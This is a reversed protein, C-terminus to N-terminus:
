HQKHTYLSYHAKSVSLLLPPHKVKFKNANIIIFTLDFTIRLNLITHIYIYINRKKRAVNVANFM